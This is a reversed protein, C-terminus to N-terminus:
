SASRSRPSGASSRARRARMAACTISRPRAPLLASRDRRVAELRPRAHRVRRRAARAGLAVRRDRDRLRRAADQQLMLWMAEVYDGAFGWDRKADLNGLFLKKDLGHKIRAAARTIKRTVFPIGRRPRSTTSCSAARLHVPRLRRPLEPVAPPRVGQRVRVPQPAPVAHDREAAPPASGFMESSSAQYFRCGSASSRADGRAPAAHGHRRDRGHVRPHRLQRARPEARRPQLDRRAQDDRSWTPWRAATRSTATTCACGTTRRRAPGPLDRELRETNFSSSRRVIGHVEYGKALLLEALYSGDQGTIGTILARKTDDIESEHSRTGPSRGRSGMPSRRTRRSASGSRRAASTSGAARSATRSRPSGLVIAGTLRGGARDDGGSRQISIEDGSGLNM